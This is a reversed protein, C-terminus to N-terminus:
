FLTRSYREIAQSAGAAARQAQELGASTTVIEPEDDEDDDGHGDGHGGHGGDDDDDNDEAYQMDTNVAVALWDAGRIMNKTVKIIGPEDSGFRKHTPSNRSTMENTLRTRDGPVLAKPSGPVNEIRANPGRPPIVTNQKVIDVQVAGNALLDNHQPEDLVPSVANPPKHNTAPHPASSVQLPSLPRSTHIFTDAKEPIEKAATTSPDHTAVAPPREVPAPSVSSSHGRKEAPQTRSDKIVGNINRERPQSEPAVDELGGMLSTGSHVYEQLRTTVMGEDVVEALEAKVQPDSRLVPDNLNADTTSRTFFSQLFQLLRSFM